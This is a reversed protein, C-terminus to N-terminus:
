KAISFDNPLITLNKARCGPAPLGAAANVVSIRRNSIFDVCGCKEM